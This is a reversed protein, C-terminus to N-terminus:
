FFFLLVNPHPPALRPSALRPSLLPARACPPHPRLEVALRVPLIGLGEEIPDGDGAKFDVYADANKVRVRAYRYTGAAFSTAHSWAAGATLEALRTSAGIERAALAELAEVVRENWGM